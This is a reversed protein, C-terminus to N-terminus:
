KAGAEATVETTRRDGKARALPTVDTFCTIAGRCTGDHGLVPSANALLAREGSNESGLKMLTNTQPAEELIARAWPFDEQQTDDHRRFPLQAVRIGTLEERSAGIWSAFAENAM